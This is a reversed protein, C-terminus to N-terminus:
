GPLLVCLFLLKLLKQGVYLSCINVVVWSKLIERMGQIKLPFGEEQVLYSFHFTISLFFYLNFCFIHSFLFLSNLLVLSKQDHVLLDM